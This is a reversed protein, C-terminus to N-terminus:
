SAGCGARGLQTGASSQSGNISGVANYPQPWTEANAADNIEFESRQELVQNSALVRGIAVFAGTKNGPAWSANYRRSQGPALTDSGLVQAFMQDASWRWVETGTPTRVEFDYRASSNFLLVLPQTGSNTSHFVFRVTDTRIEVELSKGLDSQVMETRTEGPEDGSQPTTCGLVALLAWFPGWRRM